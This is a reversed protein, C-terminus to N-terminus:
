REVISLLYNNLAERAPPLHKLAPWDGIFDAAAQYALLRTFPDQLSAQGKVRSQQWHPALAPQWSPYLLLLDQRVQRYTEAAEPSAQKSRFVQIVLEEFQDWMQVFQVVQPDQIQQVISQTVPNPM